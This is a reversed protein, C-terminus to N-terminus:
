GSAFHLRQQHEHLQCLSCLVSFLTYRASKSAEVEKYTISNDAANQVMQLKKEKSLRNIASALVHNPIDSLEASLVDQRIGQVFCGLNHSSSFCIRM